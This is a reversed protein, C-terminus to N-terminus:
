YLRQRYGEDIQCELAELTLGSADVQDLLMQALSPLATRDPWSASEWLKSRLFAKACHLFVEEVEVGIALLPPKGHAVLSELLAEDRVLWARGNLRLTETIGPIIFLLGIQGTELINTLTDARRNGPREPLALHREDLIRVFGPADGRPSVDTRGSIGTTGVAVFPALNIFARCHADLAALQKQRVLDSPQGLLARLDAESTICDSFPLPRTTVM